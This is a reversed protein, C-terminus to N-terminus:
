IHIGDFDPQTCYDLLTQKDITDKTSCMDDNPVVGSSGYFRVTNEQLRMARSHHVSHHSEFQGSVCSEMIDWKVLWNHKSEAKLVTGFVRHNTHLIPNYGPHWLGLKKSVRSSAAINKCVHSVGQGEQNVPPFLDKLFSQNKLTGSDKVKRSPSKTCSSSTRNTTAAQHLQKSM